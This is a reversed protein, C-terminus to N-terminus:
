ASLNLLNLLGIIIAGIITYVVYRQNGEIKSVQTQLNDVKENTAYTKTLNGHELRAYINRLDQKMDALEGRM